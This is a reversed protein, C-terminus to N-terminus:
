VSACLIPLLHPSWRLGGLTLHAAGASLLYPLYLRSYRPPYPSNDLSRTLPSSTLRDNGIFSDVGYSFSQRERHSEHHLCVLSSGYSAGPRLTGALFPDTLYVSLRSPGPSISSPGGADPCSPFLPSLPNSCGRHVQFVTTFSEPTPFGHLMGCLPVPEVSSLGPYIPDRAPFTCGFFVPLRALFGRSLRSLGRSKSSSARRCGSAGVLARRVGCKSSGDINVVSLQFTRLRDFYEM